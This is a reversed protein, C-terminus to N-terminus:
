HGTHGPRKNRRGMGLSKKWRTTYHRSQALVKEQARSQKYLHPNSVLTCGVGIIAILLCFYSGNKPLDRPQCCVLGASMEAMTRAFLDCPVMWQAWYYKESSYLLAWM